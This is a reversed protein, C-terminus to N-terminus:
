ALASLEICGYFYRMMAPYMCVCVYVCGWESVCMYAYMCVVMCVYMCINIYIRMEENRWSKANGVKDMLAQQLKSKERELDAARKEGEVSKKDSEILRRETDLLRKETDIFRREIDEKRKACETAFASTEQFSKTMDELRREAEGLRHLLEKNKLLGEQLNKETEIVKKDSEIVQRESEALRKDGELTKKELESILADSGKLKLELEKGLKEAELLRREADGLRKHADFVKKEQEEKRKELETAFNLEAAAMREAQEALAKDQGKIIVGADALKKELSEQEEKFLKMSQNHQEIGLTRQTELMKKAEELEMELNQARELATQLKEAENRLMEASAVAQEDLELKQQQLYEVQRQLDMQQKEFASAARLAEAKGSELITLHQRAEELRQNTCSELDKELAAIRQEFEGKEKESLLRLKEIADREKQLGTFSLEMEEVKNQLERNEKTTESLREQLLKTSADREQALLANEAAVDIRTKELTSLLEDKERWLAAIEADKRGSEERATTHDEVFQSELVRIRDQLESITVAANDQVARLRSSGSEQEQELEQKITELEKSMQQLMSAKGEADNNLGAVTRELQVIQTSATNFSDRLRTLSDMLNQESGELEQIRKQLQGEREKCTKMCSELEGTSKEAAQKAESSKEKESRLANDLRGNEGKLALIEEQLTRERVAFASTEEAAKTQADLLQQRLELETNGESRNQEETASALRDEMLRITTASVSERQRLEKIQLELQSIETTLSNNRAAWSSVEAHLTDIVQAAKNYNADKEELMSQKEISLTQVLAEATTKEHVTQKLQASVADFQEKINQLRAQTEAMTQAHGIATNASTEKLISLQSSCEAMEKAHREILARKDESAVCEREELMAQWRTNIKSIEADHFAAKEQLAIKLAECDAMAKAHQEQFVIAAEKAGDLEKQLNVNTEKMDANHSILEQEKSLAMALLNESRMREEQWLRREEEAKSNATELQIRISDTAEKSKALTDAVDSQFASYATRLEDLERQTRDRDQQQPTHESQKVLLDRENQAAAALQEKLM